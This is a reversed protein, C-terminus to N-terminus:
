AMAGISCADSKPAATAANDFYTKLTEELEDSRIDAELMLQREAGAEDRYDLMLQPPTSKLLKKWWVTEKVLKFSIMREKPIFFTKETPGEQGAFRALFELWNQQPFHHFRFGGSTVIILGWISTWGRDDFEELGRMYRGLSRALVKEKIKEEYERWFIDPSREAKKAM